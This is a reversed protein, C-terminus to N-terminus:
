PLGARRRAKRKRVNLTMLCRNRAPLMRRPSVGARLIGSNTSCAAVTGFRLLVNFSSRRLRKEPIQFAVVASRCVCKPFLSPLRTSEAGQNQNVRDIELGDRCGGTQADYISVWTMAGSYEGFARRAQQLWFDDGTAGFAELCGGLAANAEVPQQDFRAPTEGAELQRLWDSPLLWERRNSANVM